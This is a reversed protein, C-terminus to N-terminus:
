AICSFEGVANVENGLSPFIKLPYKAVIFIYNIFNQGKSAVRLETKQHGRAEATASPERRKRMIKGLGIM